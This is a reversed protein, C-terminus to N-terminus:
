DRFDEIYSGFEIEEENVSERYIRIITDVRDWKKNYKCDIEANYKNLLNYFEELFKDM